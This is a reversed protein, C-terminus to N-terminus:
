RQQRSSRAPVGGHATDASLQTMPKQRDPQPPAPSGHQMSRRQAAPSQHLVDFVQM